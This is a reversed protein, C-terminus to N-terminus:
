RGPPVTAGLLRAPIDPPLLPRLSAPLLPALTPEGPGGGVPAVPSPSLCRTRVRDRNRWLKTVQKKRLSKGLQSILSYNRQTLLHVQELQGRGGYGMGEGPRGEWQPAGRLGSAQEGGALACGQGEPSPGPRGSASGAGPM